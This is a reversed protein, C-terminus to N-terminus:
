KSLAAYLIQLPHEPSCQPAFHRVQERCSTGVVATLTGEPANEIAPILTNHAITKSLHYHRKEYGFSGAMGCCGSDIVEIDYNRPLKLIKETAKTGVLAKQQCHGHLLVHKQEDTFQESQINGKDMEQSIFEDYLLVKNHLFSTDEGALLPYEDRFSLVASPEIGVIVGDLSKAKRINRKALRKAKKVLGKSLAIRGSERLPAIKVQYGLAIFLKLAAIGVDADQFNSFEDAFLYTTPKNSQEKHINQSKFNKYASRLTFNHLKPLRRAQSFRLLTKLLYSTVNNSVFWNYIYPFLSGFRQITPLANILLVSFPYGYHKYYHQLYESKLRSIDVNSPCEAKCGKCSLCNDLAFYIDKDAFPNNLTSNDLLTRMINARARPTYREDKTARYSPCMTGGFEVDKRCDASGNCQEIAPMLGKELDFNYFTKLKRAKTKNYDYRLNSDIPPTDIIKGKNFINDKDWVNKMQKMLGYVQEGYMLPIFSGRLRGDGHEGSLSGRYKKVLLAVEEAIAKFLVVDEKQKLNLVPRLHLEGTAIHAHFVCHLDYKALINKFEAMYFPLKSPAVATDEIVSVPKYDGAVNSLLGLGAKRLAWVKNIDEGEVIPFAFGYNQSKLDTICEEVQKYLQERDDNCFETILIAEPSGEIFFMNQQQVFNRKAAEIIKKDMLEIAFPQHALIILNAMFADDLSALHLCLLIKRKPPLPEINLKFETAFALTGESGAYLAALNLTGDDNIIKDLAYGNNRRSVNNDAFTERILDNTRQEFYTENIHNYINNELNGVEKTDKTAKTKNSLVIREKNSLYVTAEILHERVSGYVLSHLGCSNNGVMGGVCCRNSTSTEPAFFLNHIKLANNLKDLVVGPQVRVWRQEVNIELIQDMYKSVDVVLGCGVVQGALSTGAARPIITTHHLRAFDILIPIDREEKLYCVALPMECYISADTSYIIRTAKDYFLPSSISKALQKLHKTKM